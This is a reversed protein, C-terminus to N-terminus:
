KAVCHSDRIGDEVSPLISFKYNRLNKPYIDGIRRDLGIIVGNLSFNPTFDSPTYKKLLAFDRQLDGFTQYYFMLITFTGKM